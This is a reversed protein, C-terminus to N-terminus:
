VTRFLAVVQLATSLTVTITRKGSTGEFMAKTVNGVETLQSMLEMYGAHIFSPDCRLEVLFCLLAEGKRFDSRQLPRMVLDKGPNIPSIRSESYDSFAMSFDLNKIVSPAFLYDDCLGFEQSQSEGNPILNKEHHSLDKTKQICFILQLM